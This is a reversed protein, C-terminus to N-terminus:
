DIVPAGNPNLNRPAPAAPAASPTESRARSAGRRRRRPEAPKAVAPTAVAPAAPAAAASPPAGPAEAAPPPAAAPAAPARAAAPPAAAPAALSAAARPPAAAPAAISPAALPPAIAPLPQLATPALPAAAFPLRASGRLGAFAAAALVVGVLTGVIMKSRGSASRTGAAVGLSTGSMVAPALTGSDGSPAKAAIPSAVRVLPDSAPMTHSDRAPEAAAGSPADSAFTEEWIARAKPSAYPLLARGLARVSPFRDWPLRSMARAVVRELGDPLDSRLEILPVPTETVIAQLVAFISDGEFPNKGTLCKYFIVGISYQDSAASATRADKVQEPALYHPTGIVSGTSTLGSAETDSSKSIGFDLVKPEVGRPGDALFINQPKLDRHVIGAGHATSLASCVPLMLDVLDRPGMPGTREFRHALDEGALLEMVLYATRGESGMDTLDVVHPHRLRSTLQAERLFRQRAGPIAAVAPSLTKLAVRKGIETHLAEYVAGMGGAGLLRVIQYKGLRAGAPLTTEDDSVGPESPGNPGESSM